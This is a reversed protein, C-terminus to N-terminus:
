FNLNKLDFELLFSNLNLFIKYNLQLSDPFNWDTHSVDNFSNRPLNNILDVLLKKEPLHNPSHHLFYDSSM